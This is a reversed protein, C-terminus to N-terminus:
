FELPIPVVMHKKNDYPLPIGEFIELLGLAAASRSTKHPVMGRVAKYFIKSSARFHFPGRAPNVIMRKRLYAHYKIKNRFFTGSVNLLEARVIVTRQGSLILYFKVVTSALCLGRSFKRHLRLPARMHKGVSVIYIRVQVITDISIAEEVGAKVWLLMKRHVYQSSDSPSRLEVVFNPAIPPYPMNKEDNTLTNWRAKLVVFVNPALISQKSPDNPNEPNLLTYAGQSSCHRGVLNMNTHYLNVVQYIIESKREGFENHVSFPRTTWDPIIIHPINLSDSIDRAQQPIREGSIRM